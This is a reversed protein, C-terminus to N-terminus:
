RQFQNVVSLDEVLTEHDIPENLRDMLEIKWQTTIGKYHLFYGKEPPLTYHIRLMRGFIRLGADLWNFFTSADYQPADVRSKLWGIARSIFTFVRYKRKHTRLVADHWHSLGIESFKFGYKPMSLDVSRERLPFDAFSYPRTSPQIYPVRHQNVRVLAYQTLYDIFREGDAMVLLEDIDFNLCHGDNGFRYITHTMSGVQGFKNGHSHIPGHKFPWRVLLVDDPLHKALDYDSNNDYLIVRDVGHANRYYNVYDCIWDIQNNKQQTAITLKAASAYANRDITAQWHLGNAFRIEVQNSAKIKHGKLDAQMHTFSRFSFAQISTEYVTGNITLTLPLLESRLNLLPPGVAQLSTNTPDFFVDFFITEDDYQAMDVDNLPEGDSTRFNIFPHRRLSGTPALFVPNIPVVIAM